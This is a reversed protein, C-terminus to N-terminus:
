SEQWRGLVFLCQAQSPRQRPSCDGEGVSSPPGCSCHDVDDQDVPRPFPSRVDIGISSGITLNAYIRDAHLLRVTTSLFTFCPQLEDCVTKGLGMEDALIGGKNRGDEMKILWSLGIKQYEKLTSSMIRPTEERDDQTNQNNLEVIELMKEISEAEGATLLIDGYDANDDSDQGIWTPRQPSPLYPVPRQVSGLPTIPGDQITAPALPQIQTGPTILFQALEDPRMFEQNFADAPTAGNGRYANNLEPFPDPRISGQNFAPGPQAWTDDRFANELEPFPDPPGVVNRNSNTLEARSVDHCEGSVPDPLGAPSPPDSITLDIIPADGGPAEIPRDWASRHQPEPAGLLSDPTSATLPSPNASVRKPQPGDDKVALELNRKRSPLRLSESSSAATNNSYPSAQTSASASPQDHRELTALERQMQELRNTWNFYEPDGPRANSLVANVVGIQARLVAAQGSSAM